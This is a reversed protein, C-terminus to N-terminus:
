PRCCRRTMLGFSAPASRTIARIGVQPAGYTLGGYNATYMLPTM